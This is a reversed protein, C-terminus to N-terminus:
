CPTFDRQYSGPGYECISCCAARKTRQIRLCSLAVEYLSRMILNMREVAIRTPATSALDGSRAASDMGGDASEAGGGM